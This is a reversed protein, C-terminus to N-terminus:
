IFPEHIPLPPHVCENIFACVSPDLLKFIDQKEKPVDVLIDLSHWMLFPLPLRFAYAITELTQLTPKRKDLEIQSLYSQTIGSMAAMEGQKIGRDVRITKISKGINM